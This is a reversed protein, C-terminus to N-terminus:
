TVPEDQNRELIVHLPLCQEKESINNGKCVPRGFLFRGPPRHAISPDVLQSM